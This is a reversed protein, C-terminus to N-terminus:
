SPIAFQAELFQERALFIEVPAWELITLRPLKLDLKLFWELKEAMPAGSQVTQVVIPFRLPMSAHGATLGVSERFLLSM